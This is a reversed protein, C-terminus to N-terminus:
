SRRKRIVLRVDETVHESLDERVTSNEGSTAPTAAPYLAGASARASKQIISLPLTHATRRPREHAALAARGAHALERDFTTPTHAPEFPSGTRAIDDLGFFTANDPYSKRLEEQAALTLIALSKAAQASPAARRRASRKKGAAELTERGRRASPRPTRPKPASKKRGKKPASGKDTKKSGKKRSKKAPKPPPPVRRASPRKKPEEPAPAPADAADEPLPQEGPKQPPALTQEQTEGTAAVEEGPQALAAEADAQAGAEQATSREAHQEADVQEEESPPQKDGISGRLKEFLEILAKLIPHPKKLAKQAAKVDAMVADHHEALQAM